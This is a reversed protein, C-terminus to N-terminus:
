FRPWVNLLSDFIWRRCPRLQKSHYEPMYILIDQLLDRRRGLSPSPPRSAEVKGEEQGEEQFLFPHPIEEEEKGKNTVAASSRPIAFGAIPLSVGVKALNVACM